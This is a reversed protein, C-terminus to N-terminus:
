HHNSILPQCRVHREDAPELRRGVIRCLFFREAASRGGSLAIKSVKVAVERCLGQLDALCGEIILKPQCKWNSPWWNGVGVTVSGRNRGVAVNVPGTRCYVAAKVTVTYAFRDIQRYTSCRFGNRSSLKQYGHSKNSCRWSIARSSSVSVNAVNAPVSM